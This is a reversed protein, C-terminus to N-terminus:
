RPTKCLGVEPSGTDVIRNIRITRASSSRRQSLSKRSKNEARLALTRERAASARVGGGAQDGLERDSNSGGRAGAGAETPIVVGSLELSEGIRRSQYTAISQMETTNRRRKGLSHSCDITFTWNKGITYSPTIGADNYVDARIRSMYYGFQVTHSGHIWTANDGLNYTDVDRGQNRFTNLPNSIPARVVNVHFWSDRFRSPFSATPLRLRVTFM